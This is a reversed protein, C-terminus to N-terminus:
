IKGSKESQFTAASCVGTVDKTLRTSCTKFHQPYLLFYIRTVLIKKSELLRNWEKLKSLDLNNGKLRFVSVKSFM